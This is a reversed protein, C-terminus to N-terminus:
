KVVNGRWQLDSMSAELIAGLSREVTRFAIYCRSGAQTTECWRAAAGLNEGNRWLDPTSVRRHKRSVLHDGFIQFDRLSVGVEVSCLAHYGCFRGGWNCCARDLCRVSHRQHGSIPQPRDRLHRFAFYIIHRDTPEIRRYSWNTRGGKGSGNLERSNM